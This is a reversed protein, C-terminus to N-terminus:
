DSTPHADATEQQDTEPLRYHSHATLGILAAFIAIMAAVVAGMTSVYGDPAVGATLAVITAVVAVSFAVPADWRALRPSQRTREVASDVSAHRGGLAWVAILLGFLFPTYRTFGLTILVSMYAIGLASAVKTRYGVLLAVGVATQVVAFTIAWAEVAPLFAVDVLTSIAAFHEVTIEEFPASLGGIEAWGPMKNLVPETSILIEHLLRYGVFVRLIEAGISVGAVGRYALWLGFGALGSLVGLELSAEPISEGGHDVAIFLFYLATVSAGAALSPLAREPLHGITALREGFRSLPDTASRRSLWGDVGYHQGADTALAFLHGAMLIPGVGAPGFAVVLGLQSIAGISTLRVFVGLIMCIGFAVQSFTVVNAWFAAHPLIVTELAFAVVTWTGDALAENGIEVIEGGATAGVWDPNSGTGPTGLKWRRGLFVEYLWFVGVFIRAFAIWSADVPDIDFRSM